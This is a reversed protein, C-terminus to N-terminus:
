YGKQADGVQQQYAPIPEPKEGNNMKNTVTASLTIFAIICLIGLLQKRHM